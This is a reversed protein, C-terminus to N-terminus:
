KAVALRWVHEKAANGKFGGPIDASAIPSLTYTDSYHQHVEERSIAFPPGAMLTQDYTFTILLQPATHTIARLHATYRLRLDPPLAVLAARDYVADVPGLTSGSLDFINGVFIDLQPASYRSITDLDTITPVIGLEDFLQEVAMQVLEAGAVRYGQSLLWPIDLTKGCLPLFVRQGKPLNLTSFHNVLAPNAENKHFGINNNEWKQQWFSPKM